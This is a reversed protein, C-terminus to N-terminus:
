AGPEAVPRVRNRVSNWEHYSSKIKFSSALLRYLVALVGNRVKTPRGRIRCSPRHLLSLPYRQNSVLTGIVRQLANGRGLPPIPLRLPNLIGRRFAQRNSDPRPYWECATSGSPNGPM